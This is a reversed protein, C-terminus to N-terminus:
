LLFVGLLCIWLVVFLLLLVWRVSIMGYCACGFGALLCLWLLSCDFWCDLRVMLLIVFCCNVM